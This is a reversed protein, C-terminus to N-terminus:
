VCRSGYCVSLCVVLRPRRIPFGLLEPRVIAHVVEYDALVSALLELPFGPANEFLIMPEARNRREYLWILLPWARADGLGTRSGFSTFPQCHSSAWVMRLNDGEHPDIYCRPHPPPSPPDLRDLPPTPM